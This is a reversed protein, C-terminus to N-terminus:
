IHIVSVINTLYKDKWVMLYLMLSCFTSLVALLPRERLLFWNIRNKEKTSNSFSILFRNLCVTRLRFPIGTKLCFSFDKIMVSNLMKGLITMLDNLCLFQQPICISTLSATTIRKLYYLPM